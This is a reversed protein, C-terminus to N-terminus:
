EKEPPMGVFKVGGVKESGFRVNPDGYVEVVKGLWDSKKKSQFLRILFKKKRGQVLLKRGPIEKLTLAYTGPKAERVGDVKEGSADEVDSITLKVAGKGILDAYGIYPTTNKIEDTDKMPKM